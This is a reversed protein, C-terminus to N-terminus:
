SILPLEITIHVKSNSFILRIEGHLLSVCKKIVDLTLDHNSVLEIQKKSTLPSFINTLDETTTQVIPFKVQIIFHQPSGPTLELEIESDVATYEIGKSLLNIVIQELLLIDCIGVCLKPYNEIIRLKPHRNKRLRQVLNHVFVTYDVLSLNLDSPKTIRQCIYANNITNKLLSIQHSMRPLRRDGRNGAEVEIEAMQTFLNYLPYRLNDILIKSLKAARKESSSLLAKRSEADQFIGSQLDDSSALWPSETRGMYHEDEDDFQPVRLDESREQRAEVNKNQATAFDPKSIIESVSIRWHLNVIAGESNGIVTVSCSAPITQEQRTLIKLQWSAESIEGRKIQNLKTYYEQRNPKVIFVSLSKRHLYKAAVGLLQTSKQNAEKITGDKSTVIYCDPAFDFLERYYQREAVIQQRSALLEDNQQRLTESALQLEEISASLQDLSEKLLAQQQQSLEQEDPQLQSQTIPIANSRQWLDELKALAQQIHLEFVETSM